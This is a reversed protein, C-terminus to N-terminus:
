KLGKLLLTVFKCNSHEQTGDDNSRESTVIVVPLQFCRLELVKLTRCCQCQFVFMGFFSSKLPNFTIPM